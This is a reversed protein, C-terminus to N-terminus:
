REDDVELLSRLKLMAARIRTKATGLPIGERESIERATWGLFAAM